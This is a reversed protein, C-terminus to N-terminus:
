GAIAAGVPRGRRVARPAGREGVPQAAAREAPVRGSPPRGRRSGMPRTSRGSSCAWSGSSSSRASPPVHSATPPGRLPRVVRSRVTSPSATVRSPGPRGARGRRELGAAPRQGRLRRRSGCVPVTTPPSSASRVTRSTSRSACSTASAATRRRHRCPPRPDQQQDVPHLREARQEVLAVGAPSRGVQEPEQPVAGGGTEGAHHGGVAGDRAAAERGDRPLSEDQRQGVARVVRDRADRRAGDRAVPRGAAGQDALVGQLALEREGPREFGRGPPPRRPERRAAASRRAARPGRAAGARGPRLRRRRRPPPAAAGPRGRRRRPAGARRRGAGCRRAAPRRAARCRGTWPASRRRGARQVGSPAATRADAARGPLGVARDARDGAVEAHVRGVLGAHRGPEVAEAPRRADHKASSTPDGASHGREGARDRRRAAVRAHREDGRRVGALERRVVLPRHGRQAAGRAPQQEAGPRAVGVHQTDPQGPRRDGVAGPRPQSTVPPTAAAPAPPGGRVRTRRGPSAPVSLAARAGTRDGPTAYWALEHGEAQDVVFQADDSGLDAELVVNVAARVDDEADAGDIHASAVDACGSTPRGGPGRGPRRRPDDIPTVADDAVDAALVVRRRAAMPDVDLLRLSARAAALLAAYELEETDAGADSLEYFQRLQPRSPSRRTRAPCCRGRGRPTRLVTTTAPLYVRVRTAGERRHFPSPLGDVPARCRDVRPEARTEVLEAVEQEILDALVDVDGVSDRDANLGFFVRGDYSTM